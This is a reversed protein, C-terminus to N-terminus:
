RRGTAKIENCPGDIGGSNVPSNRGSILRVSKAGHPDKSKITKISRCNGDWSLDAVGVSIRHSKGGISNGFINAFQSGSIETNGLAVHYAIRKSIDQIVSEPFENLPYPEHKMPFPHGRIRVPPM